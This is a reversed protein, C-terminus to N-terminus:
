GCGPEPASVQGLQFDFLMVGSVDETWKQEGVSGKAVPCVDAAFQGGQNALEVTASYRLAQSLQNNVWLVPEQSGLRLGLAPGSSAEVISLEDLRNGQEKVELCLAEGRGLNVTALSKGEPTHARTALHEAFPRTTRTECVRARATELSHQSTGCGAALLSAVWVLAMTKMDRNSGADGPGKPDFLDTGRGSRPPM